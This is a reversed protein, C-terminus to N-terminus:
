LVTLEIDPNALLREYFNRRDGPVSDIVVAIKM